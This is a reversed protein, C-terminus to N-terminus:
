ADRAIPPSWTGPRRRLGQPQRHTQRFCLDLHRDADLTVGLQRHRYVTELSSHCCKGVFLSPTTPTKIGDLYHLKFRLPCALWSNLRNASVYSWVGGRGSALGDRSLLDTSM